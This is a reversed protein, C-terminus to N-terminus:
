YEGKQNWDRRAKKQDKKPKETYAVKTRLDRALTKDRHAKKIASVLNDKKKKAM